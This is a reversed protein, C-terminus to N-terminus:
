SRLCRHEAGHRFQDYGHPQLRRIPRGPNHRDGPPHRAKRPPGALPITAVVTNSATGIVSVAGNNAAIAVYAQTGDPTIGIGLASGEVPVTTVVTNSATAIV